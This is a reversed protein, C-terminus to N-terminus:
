RRGDDQQQGLQTIAEIPPSGSCDGKMVYGEDPEDIMCLYYGGGLPVQWGDGIGPDVHRAAYSYVAYGVFYSAWVPDASIPVHSGGRCASTVGHWVGPGAGVGPM